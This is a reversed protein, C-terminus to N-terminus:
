LNETPIKSFFDNQVSRKSGSCVAKGLICFGLLSCSRLSFDGSILAEFLATVGAIQYEKADTDTARNPQQYACSDLFLPEVPICGTFWGAATITEQVTMGSLDIKESEAAFVASTIFFNMSVALLVSLFRKYIKM